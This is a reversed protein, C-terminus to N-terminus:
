ICALQHDPWEADETPGTSFETYV